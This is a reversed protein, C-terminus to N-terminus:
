FVMNKRKEFSTDVSKKKKKKDPVHEQLNWPIELLHFIEQKFNNNLFKSLFDM